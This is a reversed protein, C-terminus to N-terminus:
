TASIWRRLEEAQECGFHCLRDLKELQQQAKKLQGIQVYYEGLYQNVGLHNPNVALATQYYAFAQKLLGLKRSAFGQYTLVEPHPGFVFSARKLDQLAAVYEGHNILGVATLYSADAAEVGVFLDLRQKFKASASDSASEIQKIAANIKELNACEGCNSRMKLLTNKQELAQDTDGLKNLVYGFRGYAEIFDSDYKIAKALPKRAKKYREQGIYSLGLLYHAPAHKRSVTLVSRFSRAAKKYQKANLQDIGQQYKVVPNIRPASASPLSSGGGGGSDAYSISSVAFVSALLTILLLYKQM